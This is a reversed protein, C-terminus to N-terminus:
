SPNPSCFLTTFLALGVESKRGRKADVEVGARADQDYRYLNVWEFAFKSVPKEV